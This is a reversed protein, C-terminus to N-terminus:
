RLGAAYLGASPAFFSWAQVAGIATLTVYVWFSLNHPQFFEFREGWGSIEVADDQRRQAETPSPDMSTEITNDSM